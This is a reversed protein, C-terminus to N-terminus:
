YNVACNLSSIVLLLVYSKPRYITSDKCFYGTPLYRTMFEIWRSQHTAIVSTSTHAVQILLYSTGPRRLHRAKISNKAEKEAPPQLKPKHHQHATEQWRHQGQKLSSGSYKVKKEAVKINQCPAQAHPIASRYNVLLFFSSFTVKASNGANVAM